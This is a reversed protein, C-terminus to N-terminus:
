NASKPPIRYINTYIFVRILASVFADAFARALVPIRHVCSVAEVLQEAVDGEGTALVLGFRLYIYWNCVCPAYLSRGLRM